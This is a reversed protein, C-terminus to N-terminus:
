GMGRVLDGSQRRRLLWVFFPGGILATIIGIPLEAPAVLTRALVDVWILYISGLLACVPLVRRHDPGVLFRVAHPMMLGVFGIGGSVAVTVGTLLATLVFLRKRLRNADIGLSMATEDGFLLANLSRAQLVLYFTGGAVGIAPLVLYSWRAGGLGGLLWFVVARLAGGSATDAQFILYSTVASLVYSIAVGALLLRVPSLQGSRQALFFVLIMAGLAGLFAAASLSYSGFATFGFLIVVVAGVSAGSTIGFVHPDALPNRVLAQLTAGVVALSAGVFGGLLVRPLRIQWVIQDQFVPWDGHFRSPAIHHLIIQWVRVPPISVSGIMVALTITVALGLALGVVVLATRGKGWDDDDLAEDLGVEDDLDDEVLVRM